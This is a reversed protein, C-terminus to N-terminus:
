VSEEKVRIDERVALEITFKTGQRYTSAVNIRGRHNSTIIKKIVYLGLGTGKRSSVKTTFFPTFMKRFDEQKIGMGNDEVHIKLYGDESPETFIRIKGRYGEEKLTDKREMMADYGNDIFNFFVEQLQTLNGYITSVDKPYERVIDIQSLKIKYQVMDLSADVIKDLSILSFSEESKRTYRLMGKVVEGGQMVNAEIRELSYKLSALVEKQEQTYNSTDTLKITDLADGSIFSLAHFRNNIQHSLGDAMTGITAMKEAQSIQEQMEKAEEFFRANEIALAAQNALVTFVRLDDQTYIEGSCKDGLVMFALLKDEIFSPIIVSADVSRMQSKLDELEERPSDQLQRKIEEFVLPERHNLLWVVLSSNVAIESMLANNKNKVAGLKYLTNEKDFIYISAFNLRVTKVVIHVILKLLRNLERIRTMGVSAQKLTDQYRKQEKLLKDEARRQLYIYLFPGTTALVAMLVLPVIWWSEGIIGSLWQGLFGAIAFPIGLVLTYVIVFISARTLAVKIDMLRYRVISYAVTLVFLIGFIFGFPYFEIGYKPVYDIAGMLAIVYALFVYRTQNAESPSLKKIQRYHSYLLFFGRLFIGFFIILYVPHLLGAKSYYGWFYKHTGSLFYKSGMSFPVIMLMIIYSLMVARKERNLKLLSVTFHYFSPATFMAGTCAIRCFLVALNENQLSYAITYGFLWVFLSLCFLAFSIHIASKKNKIFVFAGISFSFIAGLFPPISYGSIM